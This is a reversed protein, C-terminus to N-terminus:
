SLTYFLYKHNLIAHATNNPKLNLLGILWIPSIRNLSQTPFKSKKEPKEQLFEVDRNLYRQM